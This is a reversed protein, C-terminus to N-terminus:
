NELNMEATFLLLLLLKHFKPLLYLTAEKVPERSESDRVYHSRKCCKKNSRKAFIPLSPCMVKEVLNYSLSINGTIPYM